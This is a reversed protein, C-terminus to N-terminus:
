PIANLLLESEKAARLAEEITVARFTVIEGAIRQSLRPIDARIVTAIVPYGGTTQHDATLVIPQGDRPIQIAGVTVGCSLLEQTIRPIRAGRLRLAMRDSVESVAFESGLFVERAAEGFYEEHPGWIVRLPGDVTYYGEFAEPLTLGAREFPLNRTRSNIIDGARLPRGKYGGFGARMDTSRSNLELPVDVGGALALYARSGRKRAGFELRAGARLFLATDMPVPQDDLRLAFRAGTVSILCKESALFHPGTATIELGAETEVNGVLRNAARLALTDMAGCVGIGYKQLGFRGLDQVTTLLGPESIELTM